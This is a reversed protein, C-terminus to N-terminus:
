ILSIHMYNTRISALTTIAWVLADLRDPSGKINPYKVMQDELIKLGKTHFVRHQQYLSLVPLARDAKSLSARANLINVKHDFTRILQEAMKGVSNSEVVIQRAGHQYYLKVVKKCWDITEYKGSADELIFFDGKNNKGAVIIGTEDSENNNTLAPDVAIVITSLETAQNVQCNRLLDYSWWAKDNEIIEAYIEQAGIATGEFTSRIHEIFDVSLNDKNEYSTGTTLITDDKICLDKIVSIPRPTTTVILRPKPGIRLCMSVQDMVEQANKFKALEDIWVCDFQAGRLEEKNCATYIRAAAGNKWRLMKKSPNFTLGESEPTISLLGSEGEIMVSRAEAFSNAILAIRKYGMAILKRVGEAGSRTKGFGRGALILWTRWDGEPLKQKERALKDWDHRRCINKRHALETTLLQILTKIKDNRLYKNKTSDAVVPIDNNTDTNEQLTNGRPIKDLKSCDLSGNKLYNEDISHLKSADQRAIPTTRQSLTHTNGIGENRLTRYDTEPIMQRNVYQIKNFKKNSFTQNPISNNSDGAAPGAGFNPAATAAPSSFDSRESNNIQLATTDKHTSASQIKNLKDRSFTQDPISDADADVIRDLDDNRAVPALNDSLSEGSQNAEPTTIGTSGSISHIKNFKDHYFAQNQMPNATYDVIKDVDVNTAVAQLNDFLSQGSSRNAESTSSRTSTDISQIKNLKDGYFTEKKSLNDNQTNLVRNEKPKHKVRKQRHFIEVKLHKDSSLTKEIEESSIQIILSPKKNFKHRSFHNKKLTKHQATYSEPRLKKREKNDFLIITSISIKEKKVLVGHLSLSFFKSSLLVGYM